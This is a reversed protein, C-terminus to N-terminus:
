VMHKVVLVAGWLPGVCSDVVVDVSRSGAAHVISLFQISHFCLAQAVLPSPLAAAYLDIGIGNLLNNPSGRNMEVLKFRMSPNCAVFAYIGNGFMLSNLTIVGRCVCGEGTDVKFAIREM